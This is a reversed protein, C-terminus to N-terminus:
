PVKSGSGVSPRPGTSPRERAELGLESPRLWLTEYWYRV